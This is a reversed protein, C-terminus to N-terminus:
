FLQSPQFGESSFYQPQNGRVMEQLKKVLLQCIGGVDHKREAQQM